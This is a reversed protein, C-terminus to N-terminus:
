SANALFCDGAEHPERGFLYPGDYFACGPRVRIRINPRVSASHECAKGRTRLLLLKSSQSGVRIYPIFATKLEDPSAQRINLRIKHQFFEGPVPDGDRFKSTYTPSPGDRHYDGVFHWRVGAKGSAQLVYEGSKLRYDRLLYIFDASKGPLLM